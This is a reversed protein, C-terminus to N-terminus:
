RVLVSEFENRRLVSHYETTYIYWMKKIWEDKSPCRPQKWTWGVTFLAAIFMPTHTDKPLGSWYEQRSFEMSLPAKYAVTWPTVTPCSQAVESM